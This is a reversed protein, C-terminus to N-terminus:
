PPSSRQFARSSRHYRPGTSNIRSASFPFRTDIQAVSGRNSATLVPNGYLAFRIRFSLGIATVGCIPFHRM